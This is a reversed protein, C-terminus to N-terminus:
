VRKLAKASISLSQGVGEGWNAPFRSSAASTKCRSGFWAAAANEAMLSQDQPFGFLSLTEPNVGM